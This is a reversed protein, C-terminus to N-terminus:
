IEFTKLSQSQPLNEAIEKEIYVLLSDTLFKDEMKNRLRNKVIKMASFSRETTATSVLLTLVLTIVRCVFQYIKSKNTRVLWQCLEFITSLKKYYAHQVVNHEYHHLQMRLQIKEQDTFDQLYFKEVLWCIDNIRFTESVDRPDLTSSLNLLEVAHESFQVNLEHLQSDIAAYFIDVRCYHEVTFDDQHDRARGRRRIYPANINLVDINRVECFSKMNALLADWKDDRFMQLFAKTSSVLNMTNLIDQSRCQLAQCLLDTIELM